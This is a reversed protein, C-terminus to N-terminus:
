TNSLIPYGWYGIEPKNLFEYVDAHVNRAVDGGLLVHVHTTTMTTKLQEM